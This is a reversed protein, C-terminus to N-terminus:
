GAIVIVRISQEVDTHLSLPVDYEGVQRFTGAPIHVERKEADFGAVALADVIDQAGVSGFLKGGDGAHATVTVEGLDFLREARERAHNLEAVAKQELEIRRAEFKAINEKTAMVAKGSPILLNRGYGPKVTVQDGLDGLNRVKELLIVEM